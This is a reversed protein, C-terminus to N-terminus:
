WTQTYLPIGSHQEPRHAHVVSLLAILATEARLRTSGLSVRNAQKTNLVELERNTLGGEPGVVLGIRDTDNISKMEVNLPATAHEHAAIITGDFQELFADLSAYISIKPRYVQLSQKMAATVLLEMRDMNLHARESRDMHVLHIGGTGLEVVKEIAFELRDRLKIVGFAIHTQSYGPLPIRVSGTVTATLHNKTLERIELRFASGRGNTALLEDGLNYRLVRSIHHVEDGTLTVNLDGDNLTEFYFLQM